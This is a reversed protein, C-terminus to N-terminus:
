NHYIAQLGARNQEKMDYNLQKCLMLTLVLTNLANQYIREVNVPSSILSLKHEPTENLAVQLEGILLDAMGISKDPELVAHAFIDKLTELSKRYHQEAKTLSKRCVENYSPPTIEKNTNQIEALESGSGYSPDNLREISELSSKETDVQIDMMGMKQIIMIQREEKIKFSNFLFPHTIYSSPMSVHHGIALQNVPVTIKTM